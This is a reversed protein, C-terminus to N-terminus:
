GSRSWGSTSPTTDATKMMGPIIPGVIEAVSTSVTPQGHIKAPIM